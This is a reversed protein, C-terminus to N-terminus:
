RAAEVDESGMAACRIRLETQNFDVDEVKLIQYLRGEVRIRHRIDFPISTWRITFTHTVRKGDIEVAAFESSGATKVAARVTFLVVYDHRPAATGPAPSLITRTLVEIRTQKASIIRNAM